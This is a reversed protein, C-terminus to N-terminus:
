KVGGLLKLVESKEASSLVVGNEIKLRVVENESIIHFRVLYDLVYTDQNLLAETALNRIKRYNSTLDDEATEKAYRESDRDSELDIIQGRLVGVAERLDSMEKELRTGLLIPFDNAINQTMIFGDDESFVEGFYTDEKKSTLKEIAAIEEEKLM